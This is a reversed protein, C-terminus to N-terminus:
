VNPSTGWSGWQLSCPLLCFLSSESSCCLLFWRCCLFLFNFRGLFTSPVIISSAWPLAVSSRYTCPDFQSAADSWLLPRTLPGSNSPSGICSMGCMHLTVASDQSAILLTHQRTCSGIWVGLRLWGANTSFSVERCFYFKHHTSIYSLRSPLERNGGLYWMQDPFKTSTCFRLVWM